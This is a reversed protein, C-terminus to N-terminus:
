RSSGSRTAAHIPMAARLTLALAALASRRLMLIELYRGLVGGAITGPLGVQKANVDDIPYKAEPM